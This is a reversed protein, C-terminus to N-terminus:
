ALWPPVIKGNRVSCIERIEMTGWNHTMKMIWTGVEALSEFEANLIVDKVADKREKRQYYVRFIENM